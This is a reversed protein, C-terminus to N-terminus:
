HTQTQYYSKFKWGHKPNLKPSVTGCALLSEASQLLGLSGFAQLLGQCEMGTQCITKPPDQTKYSM